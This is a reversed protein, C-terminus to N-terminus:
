SEKPSAVRRLNHEGRFYQRVNTLFETRSNFAFDLRSVTQQELFESFEDAETYVFSIRNQAQETLFDEYFIGDAFTVYNAAM